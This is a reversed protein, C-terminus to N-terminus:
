ERSHGSGLLVFASEFPTTGRRSTEDCQAQHGVRPRSKSRLHGGHGGALTLRSDIASMFRWGLPLATAVLSLGVSLAVPVGCAATRVDRQDRRRWSTSSILMVETSVKRDIQYKAVSDPQTAATNRGEGTVTAPSALLSSCVPSSHCATSTEALRTKVPKPSAASMDIGSPMRIPTHHGALAMTSGNTDSSRGSGEIVQIGSVMSHSPIPSACFVAITNM